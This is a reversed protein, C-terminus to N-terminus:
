VTLAERIRGVAAQVSSLPTRLRRAIQAQTLGDILLEVIEQDDESLEKLALSTEPMALDCAGHDRIETFQEPPELVLALDSPQVGLEEATPIPEGRAVKARIDRVQDARLGHRTASGVKDYKQLEWRIVDHAWSPFSSGAGAKWSQAALVLGM